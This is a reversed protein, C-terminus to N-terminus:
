PPMRERQLQRGPLEALPGPAPERFTMGASRLGIARGDATIVVIGVRFPRLEPDVLPPGKPIPSTTAGAPTPITYTGIAAGTRANFTAIAPSVGFVVVIGGFALPPASPRMPIQQKWRQNGNSRNVAHLLNDFGAFYVADGDVAAGIVDGGIMGPPWRFRVKGDSAELGYFANTTTGVFVRDMGVAPPSLMGELTTRWMVEGTALAMAVLQSGTMTVYVTTADVAMAVPASLGDLTRSWALRGDSARFAVISRNDLAVLLLGSATVGPAISRAPLPARWMTEGTAHHLAAVEDTTVLLVASEALLLPWPTGLANTWAVAGTERALAVTGGEELPVFVHLSDLVGAAAPVSPLDRVWAQEVPLLPAPPPEVPQNPRQGSVHGM